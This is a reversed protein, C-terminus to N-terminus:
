SNKRRSRGRPRKAEEENRISIAHGDGYENIVIQRAESSTEAMVRVPTGVHRSPVVEGPPVGLWIFGVYEKKSSNETNSM